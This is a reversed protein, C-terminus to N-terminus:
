GAPQRQVGTAKETTTSFYHNFPINDPRAPGTIKRLFSTIGALQQQFLRKKKREIERKLEILLLRSVLSYFPLSQFFVQLIEPGTM